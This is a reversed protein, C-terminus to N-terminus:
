RTLFHSFDEDFYIATTQERGVRQFQAAEARAVMTFSVMAALEIRSSILAFNGITRAPAETHKAISRKLRVAQRENIM